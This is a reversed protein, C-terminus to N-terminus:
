KRKEMKKLRTYYDAMENLHALAIKGTKIPDMHTVDTKKGKGHEKEVKLGMKFEALKVKKWDIKLKKGIEKADWTKESVKKVVKKAM